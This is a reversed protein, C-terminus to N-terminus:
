RQSSAGNRQGRLRYVHMLGKGKVFTEGRDELVFEEDLLKATAESLQVEGPTGHSEMRSATNVTDGWLDYLQRSRGIVGAFLPGSHIGTRLKISYGAFTEREVLDNLALALRALVQAHDARRMPVGAAVMYCDGITKIKEAGHCEVLSDFQQFLEDLLHVLRAPGLEASLETFGVIDAFLVSAEEFHEAQLAGQKLRRVIDHPFLAHLLAYERRSSRNLTRAFLLGLFNVVLQAMIVRGVTRVAFAGSWLDLASCAAALFIACIFAHTVRLPLYAYSAIILVAVWIWRAFASDTLGYANYIAYIGVFCANFYFVGFFVARSLAVPSRQRRLYLWLGGLGLAALIRLAALSFFGTPNPLTECDIVIYLLSVACSVLAISRARRTREETSAALYSLEMDKSAFEGTFLFAPGSEVAPM